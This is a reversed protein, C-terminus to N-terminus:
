KAGMAHFSTPDRLFEVIEQLEGKAEDVGAIDAFSVAQDSAPKIQQPKIRPMVKLTRWMVIIIATFFVFMLVPQWQLAWNQLEAVFSTSAGPVPPPSGVVSAPVRGPQQVAPQSLLAHALRAAPVHFVGRVAHTVEANVGELLQAMRPM